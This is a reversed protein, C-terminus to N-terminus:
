FLGMQDKGDGDSTKKTKKETNETHETTLRKQADETTFSKEVVSRVRGDSLVTVIREGAKMRKASRIVKGDAGLTVSYGRRLVEMPGIVGLVSRAERLRSASRELRQGVAVLADVRARAVRERAREVIEMPETMVRRRRLSEVRKAEHEVRRTLMARSRARMQAIQELLAGKDPTLRMAAQTPTACREDAVLEAITVDTEHGIAAVVPVKCKLIAEAVARENFAWLDEMSGGGRTVLVADVGLRDHETSLWEIARVIEGAAGEGQVRADVVVIEVAACRRGATVIVDQLAAGTRSTVVAIRRPFSPLRRKRAADFWGLGRLEAVLKRFRVELPGEGVAEVSEVYVQTRGQKDFFDVRGTVVVQQGNEIAAGAKRASQAFMVCSIVADEDKLDFYWHTRDRFGSVEGVVRVKAPLGKRLAAGILRCLDGVRLLGDGATPADASAKMRGPDFPLRAGSM